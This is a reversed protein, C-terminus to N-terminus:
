QNRLMKGIEKWSKVRIVNSKALEEDSIDRNHYADFLLKTKVPGQLNPLRDDIQADAVFLNKSNTFIIKEPDLFPLERMLYEYKDAFLKASRRELGFMVCASCLYIDYDKSLEELTEKADEVLVADAYGDKTIYFDYFGQENGKFEPVCDEVFYETFDDEVYSTGLFENMITTFGPICIVYDLDVLLTKKM